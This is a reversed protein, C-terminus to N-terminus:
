HLMFLRKHLGLYNKHTMMEQKIDNNHQKYMGRPLMHNSPHRSKLPSFVSTSGKYVGCNTTCM